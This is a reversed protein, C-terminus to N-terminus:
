LKNLGIWQLILTLNLYKLRKDSLAGINIKSAQPDSINFVMELSPFVLGSCSHFPIKWNNRNEPTMNPWSRSNCGFSRFSIGSLTQEMREEDPRCKRFNQDFPFRGVIRTTERESLRAQRTHFSRSFFSRAFDKPRPSAGRECSNM